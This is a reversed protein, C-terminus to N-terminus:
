HSSTAELACVKERPFAALAMMRNLSPCLPLRKDEGGSGAIKGELLHSWEAAPTVSTLNVALYLAKSTVAGELPNEGKNAFIDSSTLLLPSSTSM